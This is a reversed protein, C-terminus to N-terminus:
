NGDTAIAGLHRRTDFLLQCFKYAGRTDILLVRGTLDM